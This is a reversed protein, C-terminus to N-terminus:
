KECRGRPGDFDCGGYTEIRREMLAMWVQHGMTLLVSSNGSRTKVEMESVERDM